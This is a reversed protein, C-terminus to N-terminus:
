RRASPTVWIMRDGIPRDMRDPARAAGYLANVASVAAEHQTLRQAVSWARSDRDVV